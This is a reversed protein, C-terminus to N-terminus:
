RKPEHHKDTQLADEYLKQLAEDKLHFLNLCYASTDRYESPKDPEYVYKVPAMLILHRGYGDKQFPSMLVVEYDKSWYRLEGRLPTGDKAVSEIAVTKYPIESM